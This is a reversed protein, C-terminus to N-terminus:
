RASGNAQSIIGTELGFPRYDLRGRGDVRIGEAIGETIFEIEGPSLSLM